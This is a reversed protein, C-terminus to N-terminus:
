VLSEGRPTPFHLAPDCLPPRREIFVHGLGRMGKLNRSTYTLLNYQPMYLWQVSGTWLTQHLRVLRFDVDDCSWAAANIVASASSCRSSLARVMFCSMSTGQIMMALPRCRCGSQSLFATLDVSAVSSLVCGHYHPGPPRAQSILM